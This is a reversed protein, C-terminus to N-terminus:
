GPVRVLYPAMAPNFSARVGGPRAQLFLVGVDALKRARELGESPGLVYLATALVDATMPDAAVVTVSGWAPVPRGSRPDLIHGLRTGGVVVGRESQGSTAVSEGSVRLVAAVETRRAPHAVGVEVTDSGLLLLQGGLDIRARLVGLGALHRQVRRLAAGKGIGGLDIWADPSLRTLTHAEEDFAVGVGGTAALARRLEAAGPERGEGRLDWADVLAGVAPDFAGSSWESWVTAETLVAALFSTVAQPRGVDGVNLRGVESDERWSSLMAEAHELEGVAGAVARRAAADTLAWVDVKALTGMVAVTRSRHGPADQASLPPAAVGLLCTTVLATILLWGPCRFGYQRTCVDGSWVIPVVLVDRGVCPEGPV